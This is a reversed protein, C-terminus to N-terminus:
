ALYLIRGCNTCQVPKGSRVQQMTGTSLSIRCGGCIGQGVRSVATGKQKSLREYLALTQPDINDSLAQRKQRLDALITNTQKIDVSLQKQQKLCDTELQSLEKGSATVENEAQEIKKMIELVKDELQSRHAKLIDVEHQLNTLEKPNTIRGSYLKGEDPSIRATLDEIERETDRQQRKLEGLEQQASALRSRAQIVVGSEGLQSTLHKLKKDNAEIELDTEQLQNVQQAVNM